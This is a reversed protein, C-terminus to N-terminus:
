PAFHVYGSYFYDFPHPSVEDVRWTGQGHLGKLDGTGSLIRWQTQMKAQESIITLTGLKDDFEAELTHINNATASGDKHLLFHGDASGSATFSGNWEVANGSIDLRVNGSNGSANFVQQGGGWIIIKGNVAIFKPNNKAYVMSMPVTLMAVVLLIGFVGLVKKNM